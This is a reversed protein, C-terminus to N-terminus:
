LFIILVICSTGICRHGTEETILTTSKDCIIFPQLGGPKETRPIGWALISSYAAMGKEM